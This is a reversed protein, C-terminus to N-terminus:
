LDTETETFCKTTFNLKKIAGFKNKYLLDQKGLFTDVNVFLKMRKFFGAFIQPEFNIEM